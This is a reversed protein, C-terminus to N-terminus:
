APIQPPVGIGGDFFAKVGIYERVFGFHIRRIRSQDYDKLIEDPNKVALNVTIHNIIREPIEASKVFHGFRQFSKLL